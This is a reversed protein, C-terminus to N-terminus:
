WRLHKLSFLIYKGQSSFGAAIDPDGPSPETMQPETSPLQLPFRSTPPRSDSPHMVAVELFAPQGWLEDEVVHLCPELRRGQIHPTPPPLRWKWSQLEKRPGEASLRTSVRLAWGSDVRMGSVPVTQSQHLDCPGQRVLLLLVARGEGGGGGRERGEDQSSFSWPVM